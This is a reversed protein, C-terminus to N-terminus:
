GDTREKARAEHMGAAISPLLDAAAEPGAGSAIALALAGAMDIRPGAMDAVMTALAAQWVAAGDVTLPAHQEYPCEAGCDKDLARCGRCYDPGGGFHWAARAKM